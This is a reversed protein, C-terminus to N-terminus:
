KEKFYEKTGPGTRYWKYNVEELYYGINDILAYISEDDWGSILSEKPIRKLAKILKKNEYM